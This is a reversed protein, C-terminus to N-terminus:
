VIMDVSVSFAEPYRVQTDILQYGTVKIITPGSTYPDAMIEAAGWEGIVLQDWAGFFIANLNTGSGKTLDGRVDSTTYAGYGNMEGDRGGTWVPINATNALAPIKKLRGRGRPTTVYALTGEDANDAAVETELDVMFDYTPLAGNTGFPVIAVGAQNAVGRPENGTGTGHLAARQIGRAHVNLLDSRVMNEVGVSSQRLFQRSFTTASQGVKPSMNRNGLTLSTLATNVIETGWVFSAAGTQTVFSLDDRLGDLFQAGLRTLLMRSRLLEIFGAFQTFRAETGKGAGAAFSLQTRQSPTLMDWVAQRADVTDAQATANYASGTTPVFLGRQPKRGIKKAIEDSVEFEFGGRAGELLGNIARVYSFRQEEKETLTVPSPAAAAQELQKARLEAGIEAIPKGSNSYAIADSLGLGRVGSLEVMQAIQYMRESKPEAAVVPAPAGKEAEDAMIREESRTSPTTHAIRASRGFGVFVDAPITVSSGEHPQWRTYRRTPYTEGEGKTEVYEDGVHYGISVDPRIGTRIDLVHGQVDDRQSFVLSAVLKGDDRVRVDTLRGLLDYRTHEVLFPLGRDARSLDVHGPAHSLVEYFLEDKRWDYRLVPTESSLAVEIQDSADSDARTVSVAADRTLLSVGNRTLADVQM